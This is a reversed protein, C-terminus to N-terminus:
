GQRERQLFCVDVCARAATPGAVAASYGNADCQSACPSEIASGANHHKRFSRSTPAHFEAFSDTSAQADGTAPKATTHLKVAALQQPRVQQTDDWSGMSSLIPDSGAISQRVAQQQNNANPANKLLLQQRLQQVQHPHETVLVVTGVLLCIGVLVSWRASGRTLFSKIGGWFGKRSDVEVRGRDEEHSAEQVM